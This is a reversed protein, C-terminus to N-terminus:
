IAYFRPIACCPTGPSATGHGPTRPHGGTGEEGKRGAAPPGRTGSYPFIYWIFFYLIM